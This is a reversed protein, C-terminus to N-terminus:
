NRQYIFRYAYNHVQVLLQLSFLDADTLEATQYYADFNPIFLLGSSFIRAICSKSSVASICGLHRISYGQAISCNLMNHLQAKCTCNLSM